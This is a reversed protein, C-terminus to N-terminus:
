TAARVPQSLDISNTLAQMWSDQHPTWQTNQQLFPVFGERAVLLNYTNFPSNEVLDSWEGWYPRMEPEGGLEGEWEDTLYTLTDFHRGDEAICLGRHLPKLRDPNVRLGTEEWTERVAAELFGEGPDLKGGPMCVGEGSKRHVLLVQGRANVLLVSTGCLM